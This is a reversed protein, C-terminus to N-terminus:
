DSLKFKGLMNDEKTQVDKEKEKLIENNDFNIM